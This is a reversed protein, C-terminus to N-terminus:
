GSGGANALFDTLDRKDPKFLVEARGGCCFWGVEGFPADATYRGRVSPLLSMKKAPNSM